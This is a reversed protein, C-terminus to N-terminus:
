FNDSIPKKRNLSIDSLIERNQRQVASKALGRKWKKMETVDDNLSSKMSDEVREEPHIYNKFVESVHVWGMLVARFTKFLTGQVPKSMFDAIMQQTPCYQVVIEGDKIRDTVWFYKVAIHKSNWTCSDRGNKLMKIELENDKCLINWKTKYGQGEMFLNYYITKPLAESKGVFECETSSRTNMKQKSSKTDIVGTGMTIVSGTHGRMDKEHVAHASDIMTMMSHLDDAGIIRVDEVTAKTFSMLRVLKHWDDKTPEKMRTTLYGMTTEFDPRSRKSAWLTKMVYKRFYGTFKDCLPVSSKSNKKIKFLWPAAPTTYVRTLKIGAEEEFEKTMDTLFQVTGIAVKGDERFFIEMGLFDLKRGRQVVLGPFRSEIKGIVDDLVADEVHGIINDDVYWGITCQKGNIIKNAVCKDYMNLEFGEELLITVYLEYWLLASEIMGYIAKNIQVYLVKRGNEHRVDQKFEPNVDCMINVFEGTIKLLVFKGPPLDAHLYAGPVDFVATSRKEHGFIIFMSLLAELSLTPSSAEERPVYARQTSGNACTRGKIKGCRKEKILNVADLANRKQEDTLKEYAVRIVVEMDNLQKYEKFMAAVAEEKFLKIGKSAHMQNFIVNVAHIYLEKQTSHKSGDQAFSYSKGSMSPEYNSPPRVNRKPRNNDDSEEENNNDSRVESDNNDSRVEEEDDDQASDVNEISINNDEDNTIEEENEDNENVIENSNPQEDDREGGDSQVSVDDDHVSTDSDDDSEDESDDNTNYSEDSSSDEDTEVDTNYSEDSNSIEGTELDVLQAVADNQAVNATVNGDQEPGEELEGEPLPILDAGIDIEFVPCGQDDLAPVNDKDALAHVMDIIRDSIALEDWDYGHIKRGTELNLFYYGGQRNCPRLAICSLKREKNTNDTGDYVECYAGFTVKLTKMDVPEKGQIMAGPSYRDSVGRKYPYANLWENIEFLNEDVMVKPARKYPLAVWYCRTREKIVRIRREIRDVHENAACCEVETTVLTEVKRFEGDAYIVDITVGRDNYLKVVKNIGDAM